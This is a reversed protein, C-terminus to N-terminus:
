VWNLLVHRYREDALAARLRAGPSALSPIRDDHMEVLVHRIEALVGSELLSELVGIEAGEVDLKLLHVPRGLEEIFRALDITEVDIASARDVNPKEEYLSSGSSWRVPDLHAHEHLYLQATGSTVDVAKPICRVQPNRACRKQLVRFADPNPEFAYVEARQRALLVTIEGVNAGADIAILGRRLSEIAERARADRVRV